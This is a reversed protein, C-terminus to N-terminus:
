TPTKKGNTKMGVFSNVILDVRLICVETYLIRYVDYIIHYCEYSIIRQKNKMSIIKKGRFKM